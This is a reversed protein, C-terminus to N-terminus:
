FQVGDVLEAYRQTSGYTSGCIRFAGVFREDGYKKYNNVDHCRKVEGIYVVNKGM